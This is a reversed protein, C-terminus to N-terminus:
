VIFAVGCNDTIGETNCDDKLSWGSTDLVKLQDCGAFMYSMDAVNSVDWGSLNLTEVSHCNQFMLSMNEVRSVDWGSIDFEKLSHCENFMARMDFVNSTDWGSMDIDTLAHCCNFMARTIETKEHVFNAPLRLTQLGGCSEFMGEYSTVNSVDWNSIDLEPMSHCNWFMLTMNAVRSVDWGNLELGILYNCQAFMYSMNEVSSTNWGSVDLELLDRCEEFMGVMDFVNSTDWGKTNITDLRECRCFMHVTNTVSAGVFGDPLTLTRLEGCGDFLSEMNTVGSTNWGTLDLETLISCNMFTNFMCTVSSTDFSSVDLSTLSRCDMFMGNMETLSHTDWGSVNLDALGYCGMFMGNMRAVRGTNWSSLDLETLSECADFMHDMNNVRITDWGSVDLEKLSVCTLFMESMDHVRSTDVGSFNISELAYCEAFMMRMNEVRSTDLMSLDIHRLSECGHFMAIMDVVNSTDLGNLDISELSKCFEFMGGTTRAQSLDVCGNFSVSTMNEYGCFLEYGDSIAVGGEGGIYLDYLKGNKVLWAMVSGSGDESVDWSDQTMDELSPVFSVSAIEWRSINENGFVPCEFYANTGQMDYVGSLIDARLRPLNTDSLVPIPTATPEATPEATPATTAAPTPEATVIPAANSAADPKRLLQAGLVGAAALALVAVCIAVILAPSVKKKKPKSNLYRSCLRNVSEMFYETTATLGNQYRVADIDEPLEDPFKFGNLMVPIINKRLKLAEAIERRVWDHEDHCRDLAHPSLILVFDKCSRINELLADNFKGARLVELDYFVDYGREKLAQYIYMATMDGGDRRYSIFIDCKM